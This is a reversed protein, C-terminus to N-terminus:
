IACKTTEMDAPVLRNATVEVALSPEDSTTANLKVDIARGNAAFISNGTRATVKTLLPSWGTHAVAAAGISTTNDAFSKTWIKQSTADFYWAVCRFGTATNDQLRAVLVRNSTGGLDVETAMRVGQTLSTTAAQAQTATATVTTVTTQTSLSSLYLTGVAILVLPILLMMAILEPMSIGRDDRLEPRLPSIRARLESITTMM